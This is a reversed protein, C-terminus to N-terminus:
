LSSLKVLSICYTYWYQSKHQFKTLIQRFCQSQLLFIDVPPHSTHLLTWYVSTSSETVSGKFLDSYFQVYNQWDKYEFYLHMLNVYVSQQNITGPKNLLHIWRISKKRFQSKTIVGCIIIPSIKSTMLHMSYYKQQLPSLLLNEEKVEMSDVNFLFM